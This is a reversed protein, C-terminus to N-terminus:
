VDRVGRLRAEEPAPRRLHQEAAVRVLERVEEDTVQSFDEYWAGVAYFLDPTHACVIRDVEPELAACTEPPAVPVAVVVEGVNQERLALVAARMSAGTALGDDVLIAKKGAVPMPGGGDRYLRERRELEHQERDVVSAIMADPIELSRVLEQNLVRANGSAIAGLALEEHGPVGLKRVLFVDLPAELAEAVEFAVPVGGRALGLVVVRPDGAYEALHRALQRGAEARDRFGEPQAM